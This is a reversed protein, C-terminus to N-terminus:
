QSSQSLFPWFHHWRHQVAGTSQESLNLMEHAAVMSGCQLPDTSAHMCMGPSPVVDIVVEDTNTVLDVGVNGVGDAVCGATDAVTDVVSAAAM